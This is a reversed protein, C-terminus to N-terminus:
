MRSKYKRVTPLENKLIHQLRQEWESCLGELMEVFEKNQALEAINPHPGELEPIVPIRLKIAGETQTIARFYKYM